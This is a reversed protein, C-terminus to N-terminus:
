DDYSDTHDGSETYRLTFEVEGVPSGSSALYILAKVTKESLLDAADGFRIGVGSCSKLAGNELSVSADCSLPGEYVQISISKQIFGHNPIEPDGFRDEVVRDNVRLHIPIKSNGISLMGDYIRYFNGQASASGGSLWFLSIVFGALVKLPNKM